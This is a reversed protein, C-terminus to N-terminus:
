LFDWDLRDYAKSIDFKLADYGNKEKSKAKKYHVIEIAVMANDLISRGPVFVSQNISICKDLVQKLRNSLVKAVIKYVINYLAISRWDKMSTQSDGKPILTINPSNVHPQFAGGTIWQCGAQYVEDGCTDWFHQYFGPNFGDSRPCKDAQM